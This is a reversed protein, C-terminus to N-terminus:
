SKKGRKRNPNLFLFLVYVVTSLIGAGVAGGIVASWLPSVTGRLYNSAIIWGFVGGVTAGARVLADELQELETRTEKKKEM